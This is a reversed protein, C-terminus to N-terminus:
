LSMIASTKWTRVECGAGIDESIQCSLNLM